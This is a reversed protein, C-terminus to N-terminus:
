FRIGYEFPTKRIIRGDDNKICRGFSLCQNESMAIGYYDELFVNIDAINKSENLKFILTQEQVALDFLKTKWEDQKRVVKAAFQETTLGRLEALKHILKTETTNDALYAKSEALQDAWTADELTSYKTRMENYRKEFIEQISLRIVALMFPKTYKTRIGDDIKVKEKLTTGEESEGYESNEGRIEGWYRRGFDGTKYDFRLYTISQPIYQFYDDDLSYFELDLEGGLKTGWVGIEPFKQEDIVIIDPNTKTM